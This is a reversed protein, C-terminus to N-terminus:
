SDLRLTSCGQQALGYQVLERLRDDGVMRQGVQTANFDVVDIAGALRPNERSVACVADTLAEGLGTTLKALRGWRATKPLYFRVLDHDDEVLREATACGGTGTFQRARNPRGNLPENLARHYVKHSLRFLPCKRVTIHM